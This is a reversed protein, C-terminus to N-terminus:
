FDDLAMGQPTPFPPLYNQGLEVSLSCREAIAVANDLAEPLDAFLACMEDQSKFYQEPTFDRPRRRDALVYGQAICVRVEHAMFDESSMFQVPHTAVVPLDLRAALQVSEAVLAEAGSHGARQLEIYFADPFRAAWWRALVDAADPNGNVLAQGIDGSAAGSLCILGEGGGDDFWERRLEARGRHKNELYARALLECLRGYGGRDRCILLVRCPKDREAENAIWVDVGVVPKVGAARAGKYFKVMGFLNALDSIGLAPMGDAAARRIAEDTRVIGDLISFESHLRLHVFRPAPADM